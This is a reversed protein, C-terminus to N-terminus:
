VKEKKILIFGIKTVVCTVSAIGIKTEKNSCVRNKTCVCTQSTIGLLLRRVSLLDLSIYAELAFRVIIEKKDSFVKRYNFNAKVLKTLCTM